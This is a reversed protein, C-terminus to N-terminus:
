AASQLGQELYFAALANLADALAQQAQPYVSAEQREDFIWMIHRGDIVAWDLVTVGGATAQSEVLSKMRAMRKAAGPGPTYHTVYYLKAGYMAAPHVAVGAPVQRLVDSWAATRFGGASVLQAAVREVVEAAVDPTVDFWEGRRQKGRLERHAASEIRKVLHEPTRVQHHLRLPEPSSIQLEYIRKQPDKAVGIKM